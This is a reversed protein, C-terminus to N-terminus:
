IGSLDPGIRGGASTFTHCAACHQEFVRAGRTGDGALTAIRARTAEYAQMAADAGMGAALAAARARVSADGHSALRTWRSAGVSSAPVDGREVADILTAVLRDDGLLAALVQERLPPSYGAWRAQEVLVAAAEAERRDTIA